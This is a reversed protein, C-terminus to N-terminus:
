RERAARSASPSTGSWANIIFRSARIAPTYDVLRAIGVAPRPVSTFGVRDDARSLRWLRAGEARAAAASEFDAEGSRRLRSAMGDLRRWLSRRSSFASRFALLYDRETGPPVNILGGKGHLATVEACIPVISIAARVKEVAKEHYVQVLDRALPEASLGRADDWVVGKSGIM